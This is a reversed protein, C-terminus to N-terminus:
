APLPGVALALEPEVTWPRLPTAGFDVVLGGWPFGGDVLARRSRSGARYGATLTIRLLVGSTMVFIM